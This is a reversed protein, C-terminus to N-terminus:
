RQQTRDQHLPGVENQYKKYWRRTCCSTLAGSDVLARVVVGAVVIELFIVRSTLVQAPAVYM